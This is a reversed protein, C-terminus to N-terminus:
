EDLEYKLLKDILIKPPVTDYAKSFDLFVVTTRGEDILSTVENYFSLLNTQYSRGKTFGFEQHNEEGEHAQLNCFQLIM